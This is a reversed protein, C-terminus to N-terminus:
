VDVIDAGDRIRLRPGEVTSLEIGLVSSRIGRSASPAPPAPRYTGGHLVLLEIVLSVPDVLWVERIGLKAFFPLKDRSEDGPSLVEIVLEATEWGRHSANVTRGISLDPVRYNQDHDYVGTVTLLELGHRAAISALAGILRTIVRNHPVSAPPVMHIVGDWVEDRGDIGLRRREELVGAPVDLYLARVMRATYGPM